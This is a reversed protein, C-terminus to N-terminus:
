VHSRPGPTGSPEDDPLEMEHYGIQWFADEALEGALHVDDKFERHSM